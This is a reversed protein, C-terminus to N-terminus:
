CQWFRNDGHGVECDPNADLLRGGFEAALDHLDVCSRGAFNESDM